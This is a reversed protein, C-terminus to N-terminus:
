PKLFLCLHLNIIRKTIKIKKRLQFNNKIKINWQDPTITTGNQLPYSLYPRVAKVRILNMILEFLHTPQNVKM